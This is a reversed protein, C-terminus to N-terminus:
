LYAQPYTHNVIHSMLLGDESIDDFWDALWIYTIGYQSQYFNNWTKM